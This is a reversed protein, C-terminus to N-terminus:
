TQDTLTVTSLSPDVGAGELAALTESPGPGISATQVNVGNGAEITLGGAGANITTM